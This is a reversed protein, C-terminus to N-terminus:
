RDDIIIRNEADTTAAAVTDTANTPLTATEGDGEEQQEETAQGTSLAKLEQTVSRDTEKVLMDLVDLVGVFEEVVLPQLTVDAEAAEVEKKATMLKEICRGIEAEDDASRADTLTQEAVIAAEQLGTIYGNRRNCDDEWMKHKRQREREEEERRRQNEAASEVASEDDAHQM